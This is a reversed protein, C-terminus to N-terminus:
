PRKAWDVDTRVGTWMELPGHVLTTGNSEDGIRLRFEGDLPVAETSLWLARGNIAVGCRGDPLIQMRLTWWAGSRLLPALTGLDMSLGPGGSMTMRNEGWRGAEPFNIGCLTEARGLSPPARRQDAANLQATDVGAVLYARLRQWKTRTLPSSVRIEVGLGQRASFSPRLVGMSAYIGDGNNSFGRVGGPGSVITPPPDGWPLWRSRWSEDWRERLVTKPPEGVIRFTRQVRRWGGIEAAITVSGASLPHVEGLSDVRAVATDSSTWTPPVYLPVEVGMTSLSRVRLRTGIGFPITSASDTFELRAIVQTTDIPGTWWRVGHVGSALPRAKSPAALPVIWDRAGRVGDRRVEAVVWRRDASLATHTIIPGLLETLQNTSWDLVALPRRAGDEFSVVLEDAGSWGAFDVLRRGGPMRCEPEHRGDISTVCLLGVNDDSERTFAIRTGDPSVRPMTDHARGRTIQRAAGTATDFVAVDYDGDNAPAWRMSTGVIGSGDPLWQHGIDDRPEFTLRRTGTPTRLWLDLTTSDGTDQTWITSRGDPSLAPRYERRALMVEDDSARRRSPEVETARGDWEDIRPTAVLAHATSDVYILRPLAADRRERVWFVTGIVAAGLTAAVVAARRRGPTWLGVRWTWPVCGALRAALADDDAAFEVAIAAFPRADGRLRARQAYRLFLQVVRADNGATRAHHAARLLSIADSERSFWEGLEREAAARQSDSFGTRAADAIEDHAPTWGGGVRVALGQQELLSLRPAMETISIRLMTALAQEDIPVGATALLALVQQAPEPLTRVRARLAEGAQLLADLRARDRCSWEGGDLTLLNEDLALRLTELVLLPSGRSAAHLGTVFQAAWPADTPLAGLAAVLLGVQTETLPELTLVTTRDGGVRREPRSATLCLVRSEGLRSLLGELVRLSSADIWHVDDIALAFRQEHAVSAALDAMAHIRRRLVEDAPAVDPQGSLMASLAPNLALLTAASAPAVGAAGPLAALAAALDAAFAYPVDRDGPTGRLSVVRSANAELRALADHLLRSKGLGAPASLHIHRAAGTRVADWASTIIHFERERGTLEAVLVPAQSEREVPPGVRRARALAARTSPELVLQSSAAWEELAAAEVGAAVFDRASVAAELVLRWAAEEHIARDRVMRAVRRGDRAEGRNLHRRVLLEGARIFSAQLRGREYDAWQEFAAGGPVGFSPLFEGGYAAVAGEVDDRELAALFADRDTAIADSLSLEETGALTSDGILRRLHYLTQRLARRAREPDLDAWLLDILTERSARRGPALALYALLALPKGPGLVPEASEASYLGVVGLTRLAFGSAPRDATPAADKM